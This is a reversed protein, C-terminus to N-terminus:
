LGCAEAHGKLHYNAQHQHPITPKTTSTPELFNAKELNLFKQKSPAHVTHAPMRLQSPGPAAEIFHIRATGADFNSWAQHRSQKSPRGLLVKAELLFAVANATAMGHAFGSVPIGAEDFLHVTITM